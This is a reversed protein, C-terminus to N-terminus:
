QGGGLTHVYVALKRIDTDSLKGGGFKPMVANRTREDQPINVGYTITHRASTLPDAGSFRWIADTLNAAGLLPNGKGDAGHCAFCGGKGMFLEKGVAHEDGQSLAVVHQALDTIEQESLTAGYALMVGQRGNIISQEITEISGGYLWDDDALVPYNPNGAGNTGHCAACNDGFLVKASRTAYRKLDDDAIIAAASKGQLQKEYKVRVAELAKLDEKYEGISTWGIVGKTAGGFWPWAPYIIFYLLIGIWSAHLGYVWWKPPQNTLEALNEDWVHGTTKHESM